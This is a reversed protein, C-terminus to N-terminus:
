DIATVLVDQPYRPESLIALVGYLQAAATATSGTNTLVLKVHDYTQDTTDAAAVTSPDVEIIYCGGTIATTIAFGASTGTTVLESPVDGSSSTCTTKAQTRYNFAIATTAGTSTEGAYVTITPTNAASAGTQVIYTLKKYNAMNVIDSTITGGTTGSQNAPQVVNVIHNIESWLQSM